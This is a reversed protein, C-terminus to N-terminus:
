PEGRDRFKKSEGAPPQPKGEVKVWGGGVRKRPENMLRVKIFFGIGTEWKAAARAVERIQSCRAGKLMGMVSAILRREGESLGAWLERVDVSRTKM